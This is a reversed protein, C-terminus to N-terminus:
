HFVQNKAPNCLMGLIEVFRAGIRNAINIDQTIVNMTVQRTVRTLVPSPLPKRSRQIRAKTSAQGTADMQM